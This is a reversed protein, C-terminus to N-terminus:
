INTYGFDEAAIVEAHCGFGQVTDKTTALCRAPVIFCSIFERLPTGDIQELVWCNSFYEDDRRAGGLDHRLERIADLRARALPNRFVPQNGLCYWLAGQRMHHILRWERQQYFALPTGDFYSDTEQFLSLMMDIFGVLSLAPERDTNFLEFLERRQAVSLQYAKKIIDPQYPLGIDLAKLMDDTPLQEGGVTLSREVIALVVSVDRLEKLKQIIQLHLGPSGGLANYRQGQADVPSYYTAPLIGIQRAAPVDVALSFAGFLDAHAALPPREGRFSPPVYGRAFRQFLEREECLTFCMRSQIHTYEAEGNAM